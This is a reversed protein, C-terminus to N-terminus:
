RVEMNGLIGWARGRVRMRGMPGGHEGLYGSIGGPYRMGEWGGWM